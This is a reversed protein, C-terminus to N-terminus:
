VLSHFEPSHVHLMAIAEEISRVVHFKPRRLDAFLQFMRLLGFAVIQPAVIIRPVDGSVEPPRLALQRLLASSVPFGTVGSLDVIGASVNRDLAYAQVAEYCEIAAEDTLQGEMRVLLIRNSVDFQYQLRM